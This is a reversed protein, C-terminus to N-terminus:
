SLTRNKQIGFLLLLSIAERMSPVTDLRMTKYGTKRAEEIIAQTLVRGIRKGRFEPKVYLRKMECVDSSIKKLAACGAIKNEYLTLLLRGYPQAYEGPLEALEREFNQFCLNFNLSAAYENFLERVCNLHEESVAQVLRLM